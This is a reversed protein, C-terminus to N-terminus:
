DHSLDMPDRFGCFVPFRPANKVGGEFHKYKAIRGVLTNNAHMAWLEARDAATFGTGIQFELGTVFDRVRLAGLISASVKNEQHSSRKTLGRADVEAKNNNHLLEEAGIVIAEGDAFRKMKLLASEKATSRGYKYLSSPARLMVGEYGADLAASEFMLLEQENSVLRQRVVKIRRNERVDNLKEMRKEFTLQLENWLDFVFFTFQPEGQQSMVGSMTAQMVNRDNPGGVVLEGDLGNPADCLANQVFTNPIPLLTRSLVVGDKIIARVGDIKYSVYLPFSLREPAKAALMPRLQTVM